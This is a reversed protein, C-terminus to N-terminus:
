KFVTGFQEAERFSISLKKGCNTFNQLRNFQKWDGTFMVKARPAVFKRDSRNNRRKDILPSVSLMSWGNFLLTVVFLLIFGSGRDFRKCASLLRVYFLVFRIICKNSKFSFFLLFKYREIRGKKGNQYIKKSFEWEIEWELKKCVDKSWCFVFTCIM